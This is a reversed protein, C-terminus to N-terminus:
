NKERKYVCNGNVFTYVVNFNEDLVVLDSLKGVAISGIKDQMGITRAPSLSLMKSVDVIPIGIGVLNKFADILTKASGAITGDALRIVGDKIYRKVGHVTFESVAIGTANVSDSVCNIKDAGKLNYILKCIAPHLHVFDSIMECTVSDNTLAYGIIGPERHNLARMGNFTHTSVRAGSMVAKEAQEYTADTHGLAVAIGKKSLYETLELAGQLEPAIVVLKINGDAVELLKNFESISPLEIKDCANAGIKEKALYPGELHLGLIKAGTKYNDKTDVFFKIEDILEGVLRDGTTALIATNGVSANFELMKGIHEASSKEYRYGLCGHTHTDIFGPLVFLGTCDIVNSDESIQDTIQAIKDEVIKIDKQAIINELVVNGNKLITKRGEM